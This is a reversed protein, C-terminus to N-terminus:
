FPLKLTGKKGVPNPALKKDLYKAEEETLPTRRRKFYPQNLRYYGVRRYEEWEENQMLSFGPPVIPVYTRFRGDIYELEDELDERSFFPNAVREVVREYKFYGDRWWQSYRRNLDRRREVYRYFRSTGDFAIWILTSVAFPVFISLPIHIFRQRRRVEKVVYDHFLCCKLDIM